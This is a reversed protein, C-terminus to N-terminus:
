QGFHVFQAWKSPEYPSETRLQGVAAHLAAAADAPDLTGGPTALFAYFSIAVAAATEEGIAWLTSVVQRFGAIQLAAALHGAEDPVAADPMATHCASLVALHADGLDLRSIRTTTLPGDTLFLAAEGDPTTGGHCAFHACSYGSLRDTVTRVTAQAGALIASDAAFVGVIGAEHVAGPLDPLGTVYGPRRECAVALARHSVPRAPRRAHRLARITPTSSSVVRDLVAQGPPDDPDHYGAAHLPSLALPGTPCWWLRSGPPVRVADFVPRAVTDWLWELYGLLQQERPGSSLGGTGKKATAALYARTREHAEAHTLGDLPIVHGRDPALVIADCRIRSVNVLVVPGAAASKALEAFPTPRQFNGFGPRTRIDAVTADWEAAAARRDPADLDVASLRDALEPHAARLGTLDARRDLVQSWWLSRGHELLEV